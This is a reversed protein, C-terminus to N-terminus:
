GLRLQFYHTDQWADFKWGVEHLDGVHRFGCKRHLAESASNDGGICAIMAHMGATTATAILHRYLATGVGRRHITPSLYITSEVTKAYAHKPRYTNYYAFGVVAGELEAVFFPVPTLLWTLIPLLWM